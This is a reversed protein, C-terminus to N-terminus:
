ALDEAVVMAAKIVGLDITEVTAEELVLVAMALMRTAEEAVQAVKNILSPIPLSQAMARASM